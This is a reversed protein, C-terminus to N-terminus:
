PESWHGGAEKHRVIFHTAGDDPPAGEIAPVAPAETEVTITIPPDAEIRVTIRM